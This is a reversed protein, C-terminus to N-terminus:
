NLLTLLNFKFTDNFLNCSVYTYTNDGPPTNADFYITEGDQMTIKGNNCVNGHMQLINNIYQKIDIGDDDEVDNFEIGNEKFKSIISSRADINIDTKLENYAILLECNSPSDGEWAYKLKSRINKSLAMSSTLIIDLFYGHSGQPETEIYNILM